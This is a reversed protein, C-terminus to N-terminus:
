EWMLILVKWSWIWYGQPSHNPLLDHGPQSVKAILKQYVMHDRFYGDHGGAWM